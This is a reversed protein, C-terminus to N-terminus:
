KLEKLKEISERIWKLVTKQEDPTIEANKHFPRYYWPPMSGKLITKELERLDALPTEHSKFPFGNSMDLHGRAEKIHSNMLLNVGPEQYYWPYSTKSSHCDFCKSEFVKAVKVKYDEHISKYANMIPDTPKLQIKEKESHTKGGHALLWAPYLLIFFFVAKM